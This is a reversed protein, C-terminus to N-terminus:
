EMSVETTAVAATASNTHNNASAREVYSSLAARILQGVSPLKAGYDTQSLRLAHLQRYTDCPVLVSMQVHEDLKPRGKM